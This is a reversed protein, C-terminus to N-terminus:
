ILNIGGKIILAAGFLAIGIGAYTNIKRIKELRINKSYRNIIYTIILWYTISGLITMIVIITGSTIDRAAGGIRLFAILSISWFLAGPNSIALLFGQLTKGIPYKSEKKTVQKDPQTKNGKNKNSFLTSLGVICILTGGIVALINQHNKIFDYFISITMLSIAAFTGDALSGGIGALAGERRSNKLTTNIVLLAIPGLPIASGIGLLLGKIIDIAGIM